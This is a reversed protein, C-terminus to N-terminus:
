EGLRDAVLDTELTEPGALQELVEQRQCPDGTGFLPDREDVEPEVIAAVFRVRM